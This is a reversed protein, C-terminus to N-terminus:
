SPSSNDCRARRASSRALGTSRPLVVTTQGLRIKSGLKPLAERVRVDDVFVGNTSGLDRVVVETGHRAFECHRGSVTEDSLPVNCGASTGLTLPETLPARLGKDPGKVVQLEVEVLRIETTSLKTTRTSM